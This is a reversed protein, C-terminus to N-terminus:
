GPLSCALGQGYLGKIAELGSDTTQLDSVLGVAVDTCIQSGEARLSRQLGDPLLHVQDVKLILGDISFDHVRESDSHIVELYPCRRRGSAQHKSAGGGETLEDDGKDTHLPGQALAVWRCQPLRNDLHGVDGPIIDSAQIIDLSLELLQNLYLHTQPKPRFVKSQNWQKLTLTRM